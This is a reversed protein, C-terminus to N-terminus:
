AIIACLVVTRSTSEADVCTTLSLIRDSAPERFFVAHERAYAVSTDNGEPQFLEAVDADTALVAFVDLKLGTGGVTLTGTRHQDFFSEKYYRDLAGFMVYNSMHHGYVLSYGDSFDGACRSDLFISGALSYEGYPDLNLYKSNNDGQMVPYDIGTDDLELWAVFDPSLARPESEEDSAATKLAYYSVRDASAHYYVYATDYIFYVGILLLLILFLALVLNLTDDLFRIAKQM